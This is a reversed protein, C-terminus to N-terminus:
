RAGTLVDFLAGPTIVRAFIQREAGSARRFSDILNAAHLISRATALLPKRGTIVDALASDEAKLIITAAAVSSRHSGCSLAAMELTPFAGVAFGRAGTIARLAPLSIGEVLKGKRKKLRPRNLLSQIQQTTADIHPRDLV